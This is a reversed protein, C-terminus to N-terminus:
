TSVPEKQNQDQLRTLEPLKILHTNMKETVAAAKISVFPVDAVNVVWVVSVLHNRHVYTLQERELYSRWCILAVDLLFNFHLEEFNKPIGLISCWAATTAM